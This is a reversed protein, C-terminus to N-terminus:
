PPPLLKEITPPLVLALCAKTRKVTLPNGAPATTWDALSRRYTVLSEVLPPTNLWIVFVVQGSLLVHDLLGAISPGCSAESPATASLLVTSISSALTTVPLPVKLKAILKGLVLLLV